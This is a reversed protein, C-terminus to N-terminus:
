KSEQKGEVSKIKDPQSGALSHFALQEKYHKSFALDEILIHNEIWDTLFDYFEIVRTEEFLSSALKISFAKAQVSFAKHTAQHERWKPYEAKMQFSEETQFHYLIYQQLFQLCEEAAKPDNGCKHRIYFQNTM